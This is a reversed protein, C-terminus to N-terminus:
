HFVNCLFFSPRCLENFTVVKNPDPYFIDEINKQFDNDNPM